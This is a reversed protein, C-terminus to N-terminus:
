SYTESLSRLEHHLSEVTDNQAPIEAKSVPQMNFLRADFIKMLDFYSLQQDLLDNIASYTKEGNLVVDNINFLVADGPHNRKYDLVLRNYTMWMKSANVVEVKYVDNSAAVSRAMLSRIVENYPRWLLLAKLNPYLRKWDELFFISRPDKWGWLQYKKIRNQVLSDIIEMDETTFSLKDTSFVHWGKSDPYRVKLGRIHIDVFEKDEFHGKVNGTGAGHYSGDHIVLGLHEMWSAIFSTGSRHMGTICLM